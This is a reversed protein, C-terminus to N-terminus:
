ITSILFWKKLNMQSMLLRIMMLKIKARQCSRMLSKIKYKSALHNFTLALLNSTERASKLSLTRKQSSSVRKMLFSMRYSKSEKLKYTKSAKM